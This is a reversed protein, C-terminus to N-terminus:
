SAFQMRENFISRKYTSIREDNVGLFKTFGKYKVPRSM